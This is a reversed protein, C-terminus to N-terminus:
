SGQAIPPLALLDILLLLLLTTALLGILLSVGVGLVVPGASLVPLVPTDPYLAPLQQRGLWILGAGLATGTTGAVGAITLSEALVHGFCAARAKQFTGVNLEEARMGSRHAFDHQTGILRHIGDGLDIILRAGEDAAVAMGNDAFAETDGASGKEINRAARARFEIPAKGHDVRRRFAVRRLVDAGEEIMVEALHIAAETQAARSGAYFSDPTANLVGM